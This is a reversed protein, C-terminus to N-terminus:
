VRTDDVNNPLRGDKLSASVGANRVAVPATLKSLHTLPTPALSVYNTHEPDVGSTARYGEAGTLGGIPALGCYRCVASSCFMARFTSRFQRSMGCYIVFNFPYSLMILTNIFLTAMDNASRDVIEVDFTNNVILLILVVALPIEVVLFVVVVAVLMMTTWNSEALRRSESRRNQKLLLERRRQARQMASILLATLM